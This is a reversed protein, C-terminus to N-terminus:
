PGWEHMMIGADRVTCQGDTNIDSKPNALDASLKLFDSQFINFDTTDVKADQNLDASSYGNEATLINPFYSPNSGGYLLLDTNNDAFIMKNSDGTETAVYEFALTDPNVRYIKKDVFLWAYGDPGRELKFQRRAASGDAGGFPYGTVGILQPEKLMRGTSPQFLFVRSTGASKIPEVGMVKDDAVEVLFAKLGIDVSKEITKTMANIVTLKGDNSSVVVKTRNNSMALSTYKIETATDFNASGPNGGTWVDAFMEGSADNRPDYWAVSGFDKCGATAGCANSGVWIKGEADYDMFVRYNMGQRPTVNKPNDTSWPLAPNWRWMQNAYGSIYVEESNIPSFDAPVRMSYYVSPLNRMYVYSKSVTAYNYDTISEGIAYFSSDGSHPVVTSSKLDYWPGTYDLSSTSFGSDPYNWGSHPGYYVTSVPNAPNPMYNDWNMDYSYAQNFEGYDGYGMIAICGFMNTDLAAQYGTQPSSGNVKTAGGNELWYYEYDSSGEKQRSFFWKKTGNEMRVRLSTSPLGDSFFYETWSGSGVPHVMLHWYNPATNQQWTVYIYGNTVALGPSIGNSPGYIVGYDAWSSEGIEPDYSFVHSGQGDADMPIFYIKNDDGMILSLSTWWKGVGTQIVKNTMTIPDFENFSGGRVRNCYEGSWYFKNHVPDYSIKGQRGFSCPGGEVLANAGTFTNVYHFYANEDGSTDAGGFSNIINIHGASDRWMIHQGAYSQRGQLVHPLSTEAPVPSSLLYTTDAFANSKWLFILVYVFFALFLSTSVFLFSPKTKKFLFM